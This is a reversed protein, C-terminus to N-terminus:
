RRALPPPPTLALAVNRQQGCRRALCACCGLLHACPTHAALPPLMGSLANEQNSFHSRCSACVSVEQLQLALAALRAPTWRGRM